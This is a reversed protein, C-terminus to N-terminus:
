PRGGGSGVDVIRANADIGLRSLVRISEPYGRVQELWRAFGARYLYLPLLVRNLVHKWRRVRVKGLSYYAPPYYRGMDQPVDRLQLTGCAACRDYLFEERTGFMMEKAQIPDGSLAEACIVCTRM